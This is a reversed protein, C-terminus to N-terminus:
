SSLDDNRPNVDLLRPCRGRHMRHDPYCGMIGCVTLRRPSSEARVVSGCYSCDVSGHDTWGVEEAKIPGGCSPCKAPLRRPGVTARGSRAGL